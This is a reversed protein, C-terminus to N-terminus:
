AASPRLPVEMALETGDFRLHADPATRHVFDVVARNDTLMTATFRDVGKRRAAGGLKRMLTSGVGHHQWRDSVVISVEAASPDDTLRDYSAIGVIEGGAVAVLAESCCESPHAVMEVLRDDVRPVSFFRRYMTDLSLGALFSKVADRDAPALARVEIVAQERTDDRTHTM